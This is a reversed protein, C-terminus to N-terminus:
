SENGRATVLRGQSDYAYTAQDSGNDAQAPGVMSGAAFALLLGLVLCRMLRM